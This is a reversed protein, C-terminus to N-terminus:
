VFAFLCVLFPITDHIQPVAHADTLATVFQLVSIKCYRINMNKSKALSLAIMLISKVVQIKLSETKKKEM